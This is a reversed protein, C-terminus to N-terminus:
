TQAPPAPPDKKQADPPADGRPERLLSAGFFTDLAESRKDRTYIFAARVNAQYDAPTARRITEIRATHAKLTLEIKRYLDRTKGDVKEGDPSRGVPKLFRLLDDILAQYVGLDAAAPDFRGAATSREASALRGELLALTARVREKPESASALQARELDPVYKMPPPAPQPPLVPEQARAPRSLACAFLALASLLFVRLTARPRSTLLGTM